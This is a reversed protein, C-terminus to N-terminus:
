RDTPQRGKPHASQRPSRSRWSTPLLLEMVDDFTVIGKIVGQHDVVPVALLDYKAITDAVEQITADVPVTVVNTIMFASLLTEPGAVILDRLSLVGSLHDEEDVVYLYYITEASPHIERLREIAQGATLASSLDIYETTMIGGATDHDYALLEKVDQAEEAQMLGLLERVREEPLEALLDAAEDPDMEQLILSAQQDTLSNLINVQDGEVMEALTEAATEADLTNFLRTREQGHLDSLIEALDAPHLTMLRQHPVSLQLNGASGSLPKVLDWPIMSAEIRLGIMGALRTALGEVGLRRLLGATGVDVGALRVGGESPVLHLDNVRVVRYGHTDVIQKDLLDARLRIEGAVPTDPTLLSAGSEGPAAALTIGGPALAEVHEWSLRAVGHPGKVLAAAVAPYGNESPVMLDEIAGIREGGATRVPKGLVASLYLM